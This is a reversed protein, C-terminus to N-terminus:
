LRWVVGVRVGISPVPDGPRTDCIAAEPDFTSTVVSYLPRANPAPPGACSHRRRALDVM